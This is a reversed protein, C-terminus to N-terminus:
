ANILEVYDKRTWRDKQLDGEWAVKMWTRDGCDWVVCGEMGPLINRAKNFTQEVVSAYGMQKIARVRDDVKILGM